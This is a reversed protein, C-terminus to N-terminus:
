HGIEAYVMEGKKEVGDARHFPPPKKDGADRGGKYLPKNRVPPLGDKKPPRTPWEIFFHRKKHKNEFFFKKSEPLCKGEEM